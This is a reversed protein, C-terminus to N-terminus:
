TGLFVRIALLCHWDDFGVLHEWIRALRLLAIHSDKLSCLQTECNSSHTKKLNHSGHVRWLAVGGLRGHPKVLSQLADSV